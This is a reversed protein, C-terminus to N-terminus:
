DRTTIWIDEPMELAVREIANVRKADAILDRYMVMLSEKKQNSQTIEECTAEALKVALVERFLVDMENPDTVDYVYRLDLPAQDNTIINRGEIQWDLDNFNYEPDPNLIRIYDSPLPFSTSRSFTPATASAALQVRKIAFSWPHKRLEALKIPEYALNMSRANRSDETLSTISKAGLHQLARNCIEVKTAM